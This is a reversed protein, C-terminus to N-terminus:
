DVATEYGRPNKCVWNWTDRCMADLDREAKWNLVKHALETNAYCEAVDGDRRPAFSFRIEKNSAREFARVMELVSYGNGTGLNVAFCNSPASGSALVEHARLHGEVLDTVHIYDRVGTGDRTDYDNGFVSLQERRGDAVQTIFPMLNNPIGLPNEGILGSDHAGVPNFYRLIGFGWSPDSAAVDRLMDEIILKTRGYPNVARTPHDETLPLFQPEGYVTASSSFIMQKVGCNAMASLLRHTGVVNNDYYALPVKTSEGVAKLGAFHVVASCRHQKLITELKAQDRIDAQEYVVKQGTIEAIRDLSISTANSLNDLVVIDHGAQLFAVCCHSGIYGAGGTILVTM